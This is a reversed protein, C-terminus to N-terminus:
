RRSFRIISSTATTRSPRVTYVPSVQKRNLEAPTVTVTGTASLVFSKTFVTHATQRVLTDVLDQACFHCSPDAIFFSLCAFIRSIM